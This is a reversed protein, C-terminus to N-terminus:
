VDTLRDPYLFAALAHPWRHNQIDKLSVLLHYRFIRRFLQRFGTPEVRGKVRVQPRKRAMPALICEKGGMSLEAEM